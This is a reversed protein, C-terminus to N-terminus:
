SKRDFVLRRHNQDMQLLVLFGQQLRGYNWILFKKTTQQNSEFDVKEFFEKLFVMLTDFLKSGPWSM